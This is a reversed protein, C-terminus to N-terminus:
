IYDKLLSYIWPFLVIGGAIFYYVRWYFNTVNPHTVFSLLVLIASVFVLLFVFLSKSLFGFLIAGGYFMFPTSIKQWTTAKTLVERLFPFPEKCEPCVELGRNIVAGCKACNIMDPKATKAVAIGSLPYGCGICEKSQDSVEKECEPCNILAM